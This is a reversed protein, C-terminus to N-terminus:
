SEGDIGTKEWDLGNCTTGLDGSFYVHRRRTTNPSCIRVVEFKPFIARQLHCAPGLSMLLQCMQNKLVQFGPKSRLKSLKSLSPPKLNYM